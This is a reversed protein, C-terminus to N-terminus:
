SHCRRQKLGSERVRRGWGAGPDDRDHDRVEYPRQSGSVWGKRHDKKMSEGVLTVFGRM